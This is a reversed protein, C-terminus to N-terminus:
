PPLYNKVAQELEVESIYTDELECLQREISEQRSRGGLQQKIDLIKNNMSALHNLITEPDLGPVQPIEVTLLKDLFADDQSQVTATQILLQDLKGGLTIQNTEVTQLHDLKQGLNGATTVAEDRASAAENQYALITDRVKFENDM